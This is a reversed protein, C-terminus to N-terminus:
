LKGGNNMNKITLLVNNNLKNQRMQTIVWQKSKPYKRLKGILAGYEHQIPTPKGKISILRKLLLEDTQKDKDAAKKTCKLTRIVDLGAIIEIEDDYTISVLLVENATLQYQDKLVNKRKVEVTVDIPSSIRLDKKEHIEDKVIPANKSTCISVSPASATMNLEKQWLYLFRLTSNRGISVLQQPDGRKLYLILIQGEEGGFKESRVAPYCETTLTNGKTYLYVAQEQHYFVYPNCVFPPWLPILKAPNDTLCYHFEFLFRAVQQNYNTITLNSIYRYKSKKVHFMPTVKGYLGSIQFTSVAIYEHNVVVDSNKQLMKRTRKDFLILSEDVGNVRSPWLNRLGSTAESLDILYYPAPQEGVPLYTLENPHLRELLYTYKRNDFGNTIFIRSHKNIRLIDEPPPILGLEFSVTNNNINIRLPLPLIDPKTHTYIGVSSSFTREPCNKEDDSSTHRFHPTKIEGVALTVSKGCLSCSLIGSNASVGRRYRQSAEEITIHRWNRNEWICVHTLKM